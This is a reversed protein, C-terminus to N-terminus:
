RSTECIATAASAAGRESGPERFELVVEVRRNRPSDPESTDRPHRDGYGAVELCGRKALDQLYGLGELSQASTERNNLLEHLGVQNEPSFGLLVNYVARARNQSLQLNDLFPGVDKCGSGEWKRDAHGEIRIQRLLERRNGVWRFLAHIQQQKDIPLSWRCKPFSLSDESFVLRAWKTQVEADALVSAFEGKSKEVIEKKLSEVENDVPQRGSAMVVVVALLVLFGDSIVPWVDYHPRRHGRKGM